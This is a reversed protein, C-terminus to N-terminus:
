KLLQAWTLVVRAVEAMQEGSCKDPTDTLRHWHPYEFDIIDVTPIGARNLALHDDQVEPGRELRFSKVKLEEAVKWLQMLVKPAMAYSNMEVPFKAGPAAFLDFLVGAEYQFKRTAKTRLYDDAFYRSGLFYEDGGGLGSRDPEFVYEEGDFIIFDIGLDAKVDKMHHGLEMMMAVGSAGDNASIFPKGWNNRNPEQDAIPRTDYHASLLIRRAADPTWSVIVNVMEVEDKRSRQRAKFTQRTVKAGLATFHKEIMEQQKKMGESGSIRPGIDCIAKLYKMAREADFKIEAVGPAAPVRDEAFGPRKPAKADAEKLDPGQPPADVSRAASTAWWVPIAILGFALAIGVFM